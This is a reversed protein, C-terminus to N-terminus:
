SRRGRGYYERTIFRWLLLLLEKWTIDMHIQAELWHKQLWKGSWYAGWGSTGSADTFLQMSTSPTWTNELILSTGPWGPLFDLWWQM